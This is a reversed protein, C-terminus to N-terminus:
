RLILGCARPSSPKKFTPPRPYKTWFRAPFPPENRCRRQARAVYEPEYRTTNSHRSSGPRAKFSPLVNKSMALSSTSIPRNSGFSASSYSVLIFLISTTSNMTPNTDTSWIDPGSRGFSQYQTKLAPVTEGSDYVQSCLDKHVPQVRLSAVSLNFLSIFSHSPLSFLTGYCLHNSISPPTIELKSWGLATAAQGASCSGKEM